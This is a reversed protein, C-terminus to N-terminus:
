SCVLICCLHHEVDHHSSPPPLHSLWRDESFFYVMERRRIQMHIPPAQAGFPPHPIYGRVDDVANVGCGEELAAIIAQPEGRCCAFHLPTKQGHAAAM